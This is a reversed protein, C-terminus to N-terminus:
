KAKNALMASYVVHTLAHSAAYEDGTDGVCYITIQATTAGICYQTLYTFNKARLMSDAPQKTKKSRYILRYRRFEIDILHIMM